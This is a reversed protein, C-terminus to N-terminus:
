KGDLQIVTLSHAPFVMGSLTSQKVQAAPIQTTTPSIATPNDATNESLFSAATDGVVTTNGSVLITGIFKVNAPLAATSHNFVAIWVDKGKKVAYVRLAPRNVPTKPNKGVQASVWTKGQFDKLASVMYWAPSLVPTATTPNEHPLYHALMVPVAHLNHLIVKSAGRYTVGNLKVPSVSILYGEAVSIGAFLSMRTDVSFAADDPGTRAANYEGLVIPINKKSPLWKLLEKRVQIPMATAGENRRRIDIQGELYSYKQATAEDAIPPPVEFYQHTIVFDIKDGVTKLVKEDWKVGKCDGKCIAANPLLHVGIKIKPDVQRLAKAWAAARKAYEDQTLQIKHEGRVTTCNVGEPDSWYKCGAYPENGLQVYKVQRIGTSKIYALWTKAIDPTAMACEVNESAPPLNPDLQHCLHTLNVTITPESGIANNLQLFEDTYMVAPYTLRQATYSSYPNAWDDRDADYVLSRAGLANLKQNGEATRFFYALEPIEYGKNGMSLGFANRDIKGATKTLDITIVPKADADANPSALTQGSATVGLLAIASAALLARILRASVNQKFM